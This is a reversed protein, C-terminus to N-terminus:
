TRAVSPIPMPSGLYRVPLARVVCAIKRSKPISVRGELVGEPREAIRELLGGYVGYMVSLIARGTAPLYDALAVSTRYYSCARDIEFRMLSQFEPTPERRALMPETVGFRDLDEQPLYIRGRGYDEVLDRLVNTLQFAIGCAEAPQQARPDRAGWIPLCALGVASAVRYCYGYLDGFTRYRFTDLDSAVGDIVEHLREVPISYRRITDELAVWWLEEASRGAVVDDLRRRWGDLERRRQEVPALGDGIDDAGRLFTYLACMAWRKPRPLVLFSYYFNRATRQALHRCQAYAALLTERRPSAIIGEDDHDMAEKGM